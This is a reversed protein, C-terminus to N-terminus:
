EGLVAYKERLVVFLKKMANLDPNNNLTDDCLQFINELMKREDNDLFDLNISFRKSSSIIQFISLIIPVHEPYVAESNMCSIIDGLPCDISFILKLNDPGIAILLQMRENASTCIRKWRKDFESSTKPVSDYNTAQINSNNENDDSTKTMMRNWLQYSMGGSKDKKDLPKLHSALVIDRFEDYNAVKQRIARFKADNERQYKEDRAIASTVENELKAFDIMDDKQSSTMKKCYGIFARYIQRHSLIVITLEAVKFNGPM